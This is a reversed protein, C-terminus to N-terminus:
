MTDAQVAFIKASGTKGYSLADLINLLLGLIVPPVYSAPQLIGNEWIAQRNWSKPNMFIGMSSYVYEISWTLDSRLKSVLRKHVTQSEIDHISGYSSVQNKKLSLLTREHPQSIIGRSIVVPTIGSSDFAFDEETAPSTEETPPSNKILETLISTGPSRNSYPIRELSAPESVERIVDPHSSENSEHRTLSEHDLRGRISPDPNAAANNFASAHPRTPSTGSRISSIDSLAWSALEATEERIGSSINHALDVPAALFTLIDCSFPKGLVYNGLSGHFSRQYYSRAPTKQNLASSFSLRSPSSDTRPRLSASSHDDPRGLSGGLHDENDIVQGISPAQRSQHSASRFRGSM